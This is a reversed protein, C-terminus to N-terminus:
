KGYLRKNANSLIKEITTKSEKKLFHYFKINAICEEKSTVKDIADFAPCGFNCIASAECKQCVEYYKRDKLHFKKIKNFYETSSLHNLNNLNLLINNKDVVSTGCPYLNGETDSFITTIGGGCFPHSCILIDRYDEKTPPKIFRSLKQLMNAELTKLGETERMYEYIETFALYIMEHSLKPFDTHEGVAHSLNAKITLIDENEFFQLITKMKDFNFPSVVCVVGGFCGIKKLKRINELVVKGKSRTINNISPPGDLSTGVIIHYQEILRLFDNNLLTLNSQMVFRLDKKLIIAKRIIYEILSDFWTVNQLLPEGGHFTIEINESETNNFVTDIYRIATELPMTRPASSKRFSYCYSCNLNCERSVELHLEAFNRMFSLDTDKM